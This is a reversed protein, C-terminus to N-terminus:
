VSTRLKVLAQGDVCVLGSEKEIVQTAITMVQVADSKQTVTGRVLFEKGPFMPKRFRIDQSLYLSGLGPLQMGILRSFWMGAFMGHAVRGGFETQVAYSESVHLPNQDGSLDGFADVMERTLMIQFEATDGIHIDEYRLSVPEPM